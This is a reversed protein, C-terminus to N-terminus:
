TILKALPVTKALSIPVDFKVNSVEVIFRKSTVILEDPCTARETHAILPLM